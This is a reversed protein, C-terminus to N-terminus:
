SRVEQEERFQIIVAGYLNLRPVHVTVRRGRVKHSLPQRTPALYAREVSRRPPVRAVVTVDYIPM